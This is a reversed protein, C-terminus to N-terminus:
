EIELKPKETKLRRVGNSPIAGRAM